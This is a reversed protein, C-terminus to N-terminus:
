NVINKQEQLASNKGHFLVCYSDCVFHSYFRIREEFLSDDSLEEGDKYWTIEPPPVGYAPCRLYITDNQVVNHIEPTPEGDVSTYDEGAFKPSVSCLHFL